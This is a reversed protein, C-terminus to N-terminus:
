RGPFLVFRLGGCTRAKVKEVYDGSYRDFIWTFDSFGM